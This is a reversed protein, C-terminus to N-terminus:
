GDCFVVDILVPYMMIPLMSQYFLFPYMGLYNKVRVIEAYIFIGGEVNIAGLTSFSMSRMWAGAVVFCSSGHISGAEVVASNM